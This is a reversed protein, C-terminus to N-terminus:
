PLPRGVALMQLLGPEYEWSAAGPDVGLADMTKSIFSRAASALIIDLIEDDTYGFGRLENFDAKSVTHAHTTIKQALLMIAVEEAPLGAHRFDKIIAIVEDASFFNKRLV